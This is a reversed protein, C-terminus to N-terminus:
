QWATIEPANPVEAPRGLLWALLDGGRAEVLQEEAGAAGARWEGLGDTAVLRVAVDPSLRRGLDSVLGNLESIVFDVPWDRAGYGLHLDAHHVEVERRRFVLMHWVPFRRDGSSGAFAEGDREWDTPSMASCAEALRTVAARLDTLVHVADKERGAEIDANRGERGHPYLHVVESRRVGTLMGAVGDANRALHTLLMARNWGPLISPAQMAADDIREATELLRRTAKDVADIRTPIDIDIM